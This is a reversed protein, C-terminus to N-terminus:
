RQLVLVWTRGLQCLLYSKSHICALWSNHHPYGREVIFLAVPQM